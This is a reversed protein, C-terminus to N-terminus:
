QADKARQVQNQELQATKYWMDFNANTQQLELQRYKLEMEAQRQMQSVETKYIDSMANYKSELKDMKAQIEQQKNSM